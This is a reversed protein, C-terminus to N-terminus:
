RLALIDYIQNKVNKRHKHKQTKLNKELVTAFLPKFGHDVWVFITPKM